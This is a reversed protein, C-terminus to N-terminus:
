AVSVPLPPDPTFRDIMGCGLRGDLVLAGGAVHRGAMRLDPAISAHCLDETMQREFSRGLLELEWGVPNGARHTVLDRRGAQARLLREVALHVEGLGSFLILPRFIPGKVDRPGYARSAIRM